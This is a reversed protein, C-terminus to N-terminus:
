LLKLDLPEVGPPTRPLAGGQRDVAAHGAAAAPHPAPGTGTRDWTRYADLQQQTPISTTVAGHRDRFEIVVMGLAPDLRLTPNPLGASDAQGAPPPRPAAPAASAAEGTSPPAGLRSVTLDNPM